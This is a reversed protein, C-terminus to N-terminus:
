LDDDDLSRLFAQGEDCESALPCWRCSHSPIRNPERDGSEIAVYREVADTVRRVTSWLLDETVDETRAQGADLYYNVLLRPPIGFRLAELLAYFRLDEVHSSVPKGTKLDIIVKGAQNGRVRGLSLDITGALVIQDDCLDARVRSEAVPAWQRKLPPFTDVFTVVFDNVRGVLEAREGESLSVLWDAINRGDAILREMADDVLDLPTPEGRRAVWLEIAKHAVTGRASAVTWEFDENESAIFRSECGHLMSLKHKSLYLPPDPVQEALPALVAEIEARLHDRLDDRFTPRDTSGLQDLVEQQAPNLSPAVPIQHQETM